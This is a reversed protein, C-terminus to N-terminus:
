RRRWRRCAGVGPLRGGNLPTRALVARARAVAQAADGGPEAAIEALQLQAGDYTRGGPGAGRRIRRSSCTPWVSTCSWGPWPWAPAALIMWLRRRATM